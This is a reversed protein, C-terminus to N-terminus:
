NVGGNDTPCDLDLLALAHHLEISMRELFPRDEPLVGRCWMTFYRQWPPATRKPPPVAMRTNSSRAAGVPRRWNSAPAEIKKLAATVTIEGSRLQEFVEPAQQAVRKAREVTPRSVGVQAAAIASARGRPSADADKSASAVKGGSYQNGRDGGRREKAEAELLPLAAVAVAARQATTLHRRHLNAAIVYETPSTGDPEWRIYRPTVGNMECAASRNRGDLIRDEYLVIPQLLGHKLIDESLEILGPRDMMPFLGASPHADYTTM